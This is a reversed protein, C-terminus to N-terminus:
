RQDLLLVSLCGSALRRNSGRRSRGLFVALFVGGARGLLIRM